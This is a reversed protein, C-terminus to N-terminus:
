PMTNVAPMPSCEARTRRSTSLPRAHSPKSSSSAALVPPLRLPSRTLPPSSAFWPARAAMLPFMRILVGSEAASAQTIGVSSSDISARWPSATSSAALAGAVPPYFLRRPAGSRPGSRFGGHFAADDSQGVDALGGQEICQRFRADRGLVVREAGDLGVHADDLHRIRPEVLERRDDLGLLHLVRDDLEDVDRAQ